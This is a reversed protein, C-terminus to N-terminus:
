RSEIIAMRNYLTTTSQNLRQYLPRWVNRYRVYLLQVQNCFLSRTSIYGPALWGFPFVRNSVIALDFRM